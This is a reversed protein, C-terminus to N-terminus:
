EDDLIIADDILEDGDGDLDEFGPILGTKPKEKYEPDQSIKVDGVKTEDKKGKNHYDGKAFRDAKAFFDDQGDLLSGKANDYGVKPNAYATAEEEAAAEAKKTLEDWKSELSDSLKGGMDKAKDIIDDMTDSADLKEKAQKAMDEDTEFASNAFDKAFDDASFSSGSGTSTNTKPAEERPAFPNDPDNFFQGSTDEKKNESGLIKTGIEEALGKTKNWFDGTKDLIEGGVKESTDLITKGVTESTEAAKGRIGETKDLITKGVNETNAKAKERVDETKDMITDGWDGFLDKAKNLTEGAKESVTNGLDEAIYKAKQFTEGAKETMKGTVDETKDKAQEFLQDAKESLDDAAEKGAETAKNKASNTVSKVGFFLKKFESFDAM